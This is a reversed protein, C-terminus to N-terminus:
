CSMVSIIVVVVSMEPAKVQRILVILGQCFGLIKPNKQTQTKKVKDCKSAALFQLSSVLLKALTIKTQVSELLPHYSFHITANMTCLISAVNM